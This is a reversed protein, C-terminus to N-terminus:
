SEALPVDIISWLRESFQPPGWLEARAHGLAVVGFATCIPGWETGHPSLAVLRVGPDAGRVLAHLVTRAYQFLGGAETSFGLYIAVTANVPLLASRPGVHITAETRFDLMVLRPVM